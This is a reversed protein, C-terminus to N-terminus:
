GSPTNRGAAKFESEMRYRQNFWEVPPRVFAVHQELAKEAELVLSEGDAVSSALAYLRLLWEDEGEDASAGTTGTSGSEARTPERCIELFVAGNTYCVGDVALVRDKEFGASLLIRDVSRCVLVTSSTYTCCICSRERNYDYRSRQVITSMAERYYIKSNEGLYVHERGRLAIKQWELSELYQQLGCVSRKAAFLSCEIM